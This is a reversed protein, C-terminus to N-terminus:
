VNLIFQTPFGKNYSIESWVSVSVHGRSVAGPGSAYNGSLFSSIMYIMDFSTNPFMELTLNRHCELEM